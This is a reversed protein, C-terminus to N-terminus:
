HTWDCRHNIISDFNTRNAHAGTVQGYAPPDRQWNPLQYSFQVKVAYERLRRKRSNVGVLWKILM